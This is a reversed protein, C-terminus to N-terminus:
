LVAERLGIDQGACGRKTCRDYMVISGAVAVNLCFRAGPIQIIGDCRVLTDSNLGHDESGLLYCAREPHQFEPLNVSRGDLEVGFLPCSYPMHEVLDEISTFHVLPVHRWAATTDSCQRNYRKGVTFIMAAGFSYASRWLTGINVETKANEVGIAWYGRM